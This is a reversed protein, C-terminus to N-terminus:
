RMRNLGCQKSRPINGALQTEMHAIEATLKNLDDTTKLVAPDSAIFDLVLPSQGTNLLNKLVEISANYAVRNGIAVILSSYLDDIQKEREGRKANKSFSNLTSSLVNNRQTRIASILALDPNPYVRKVEQRIAELLKALVLEAHTANEDDFELLLHNKDEHLSLFYNFNKLNFPIEQKELLEVTRKLVPQSTVISIARNRNDDDLALGDLKRISVEVKAEYIQPKSLCYLFALVFCFATVLLVFIINQPLFRM